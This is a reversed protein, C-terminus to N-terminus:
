PLPGLSTRPKISYCLDVCTLFRRNGLVVVAPAM